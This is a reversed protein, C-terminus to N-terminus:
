QLSRLHTNIYLISFKDRILVEIGWASEATLDAESFTLLRRIYTNTRLCSHLFYSTTLPPPKHSNGVEASLLPSHSTSVGIDNRYSM